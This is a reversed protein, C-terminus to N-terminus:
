LSVAFRLKGLQRGHYCIPLLTATINSGCRHGSDLLTAAAVANEEAVVAFLSGQSKAFDGLVFGLGFGCLDIVQQHPELL